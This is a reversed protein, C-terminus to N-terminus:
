KILESRGRNKEFDLFFNTCKEGEITCKAESRLIAGRCKEQEIKKLEEELMIIRKIQMKSKTTEEKM